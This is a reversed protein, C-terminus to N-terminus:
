RTKHSGESRAVPIRRNAYQHRGSEWGYDCPSYKGKTWSGDKNLTANLLMLLYGMSLPDDPPSCDGLAGFKDLLKRALKGKDKSEAELGSNILECIDAVLGDVKKLEVSRKIRVMGSKSQKKAEAAALVQKLKDITIGYVKAEASLFSEVTANDVGQQQYKNIRSVLRGLEQAKIDVEPEVTQVPEPELESKIDVEPEITTTNDM